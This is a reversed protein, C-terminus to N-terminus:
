MSFTTSASSSAACCSRGLPEIKWNTSGSPMRCFSYTSHTFLDPRLTRTHYTGAHNSWHAPTPTTTNPFINRRGAGSLGYRTFDIVGSHGQSQVAACVRSPHFGRYLKCSTIAIVKGASFHYVIQRPPASVFFIPQCAFAGA